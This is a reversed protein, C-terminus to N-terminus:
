ESERERDRERERNGSRWLSASSSLLKVVVVFEEAIFKSMTNSLNNLKTLKTLSKSKM